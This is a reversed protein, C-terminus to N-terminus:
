KKDNELGFYETYITPTERLKISHLTAPSPIKDAIQNWIFIVMNETSPQRDVFYSLDKEIQSHDIIHLVFQEVM